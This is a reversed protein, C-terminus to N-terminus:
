QVLKTGLLRLIMVYAAGPQARQKLV